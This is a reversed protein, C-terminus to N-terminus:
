PTVCHPVAGGEDRSIRNAGRGRAPLGPTGKGEGSPFSERTDTGCADSRVSRALTFREHTGAAGHWRQPRAEEDSEGSSFSGVDGDRVRELGRKKSNM